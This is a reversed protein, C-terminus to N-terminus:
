PVRWTKMTAPLGVYKNDLELKAQRLNRVYVSQCSYIILKIAKLKLAAPM